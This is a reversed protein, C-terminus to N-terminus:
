NDSNWKLIRYESQLMNVMQDQGATKGVQVM